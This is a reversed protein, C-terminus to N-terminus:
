QSHKVAATQDYAFITGNYGQFISEVIPFAVQNYIEEQTSSMPYVDDFQFTRMESKQKTVSVSHTANNVEVCITSQEDKEKQNMPRVRVAVKISESKNSKM